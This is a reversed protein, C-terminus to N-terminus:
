NIKLKSKRSGLSFIFKLVKFTISVLMLVIVTLFAIIDISARQLFSLEVAPNALYKASKPNRILWETWWVARELSTEPQDQITKSFAKSNESLEKSQMAKKIAAAFTKSDM